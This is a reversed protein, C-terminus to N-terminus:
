QESAYHERKRNEYIRGARKLLFLYDCYEDVRPRKILLEENFKEDRIKKIEDEMKSEKILGTCGLIFPKCHIKPQSVLGNM